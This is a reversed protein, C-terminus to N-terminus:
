VSVVWRVSFAPFRTRTPRRRERPRAKTALGSSYRHILTAGLNTNFYLMFVREKASWPPRCSLVVGYRIRVCDDSQERSDGEPAGKRAERLIKDEYPVSAYIMVAGRNMRSM